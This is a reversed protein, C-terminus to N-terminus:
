RPTVPKPTVVPTRVPTATPTPTPTPTATPTPTPTAKAAQEQRAQAQHKVQVNHANVAATLAVGAVVVAAVSVLRNRVRLGEMILQNHKYQVNNPM